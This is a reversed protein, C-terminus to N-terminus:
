EVELGAKKLLTKLEAFGKEGQTASAVSGDKDIVIYTPFVGIQYPRPMDNETTLAVPFTHPHKSLFQEVTARDEDVSIGVILLDKAAYKAYLRDLAPADQRCPPCWTTWFDLLVTKGKADSLSVPKGQVDTLTLPPAPNGALQSKIKAADWHSFQKVEHNVATPLKYLSTDLPIGFGIRQLVFQTEEQYSVSHTNEVTILSHLDLLLGTQTDVRMLAMGGRISSVDNASQPRFFPKLPVQLSVCTHDVGPIGCAKRGVETAKPWDAEGINYPAPIPDDKAHLKARIYENEGEEYTFKDQGDFITVYHGYGNVFNQRWMVGAGDVILQHKTERTRGYPLHLTRTSEFEQHFSSLKERRARFEDWITGSTRQAKLPGVALLLSLVIIHKSRQCGM